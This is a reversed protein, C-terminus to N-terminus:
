QGEQDPRWAAQGSLSTPHNCFRCEPCYTWCPKAAAEDMVSMQHYIRACRPCRVVSQGDAIEARCVPCRPRRRADDHRYAEIVPVAETSFFLRRSGFSLEDKHQLVRIGGVVIAGNVRMEVRAGVILVYGAQAGDRFPVVRFANADIGQGASDPVSASGNLRLPSAVYEDDVERWFTAM